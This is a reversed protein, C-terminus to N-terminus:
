FKQVENESLNIWEETAYKALISQPEEPHQKRLDDIISRQFICFPGEPKSPKKENKNKKFTTDRKGSM